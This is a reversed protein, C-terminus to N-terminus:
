AAKQSYKTKRRIHHLPTNNFYVTVVWGDQVLVVLGEAKAWADQKRLEPPINKGLLVYWEGGARNLRTGYQLALRVHAERVGRQAM